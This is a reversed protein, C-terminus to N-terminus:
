VIHEEYQGDSVAYRVGGEAQWVIITLLELHQRLFKTPFKQLENDMIHSHM